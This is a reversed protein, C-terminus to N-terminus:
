VDETANVQAETGGSLLVKVAEGRQYEFRGADARVNPIQPNLVVPAPVKHVSDDNRPNRMRLM